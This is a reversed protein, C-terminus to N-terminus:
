MIRNLFIRRRLDKKKNEGLNVEDLFKFTSLMSNNNNNNFNM